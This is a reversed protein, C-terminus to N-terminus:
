DLVKVLLWKPDTDSQKDPKSGWLAVPMTVVVHSKLVGPGELVRFCPGVMRVEIKYPWPIMRAFERADPGFRRVPLPM